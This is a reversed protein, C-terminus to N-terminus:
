PGEMIRIEENMTSTFHDLLEYLRKIREDRPKVRNAKMFAPTENGADEDALRNLAKQFHIELNEIRKQAETLKTAVSIVHQENQNVAGSLSQIKAAYEAIRQDTDGMTLNFAPITKDTITDILHDMAAFREDLSLQMSEIKSMREGFIAAAEKLSKSWRAQIQRLPKRHMPRRSRRRAKDGPQETQLEILKSKANPM